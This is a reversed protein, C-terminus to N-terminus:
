QRGTLHFFFEADYELFNAGTWVWLKVICNNGASASITAIVVGVPHQVIAMPAYENANFNLKYNIQYTGVGIRVSTCGFGSLM